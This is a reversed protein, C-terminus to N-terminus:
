FDFPIALDYITRINKGLRLRTLKPCFAFCDETLETLSDPLYVARLNENEVSASKEKLMEVKRVATVFSSGEDSLLQYIDETEGTEEKLIESTQQAIQVPDLGFVECLHLM